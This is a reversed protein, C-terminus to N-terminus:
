SVEPPISAREPTRWVAGISAEPPWLLPGFLEVATVAGDIVVLVAFGSRTKPPAHAFTDVNVGGGPMVSCHSRAVELEDDLTDVSTAVAPKAPGPGVPVLVAVSGLPHRVTAM